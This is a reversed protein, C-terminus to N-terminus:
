SGADDRRLFELRALAFDSSDEGLSQAVLFEDEITQCVLERITVEINVLYELVDCNNRVFVSSSASVVDADALSTRLDQILSADSFAVSKPM